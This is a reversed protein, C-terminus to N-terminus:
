MFRVHCTNLYSLVKNGQKSVYWLYLIYIFLIWILHIIIWHLVYAYILFTNLCIVLIALFLNFVVYSLMHVWAHICVCLLSLAHCAQMCTCVWVHVCKCVCVCIDYMCAPVAAIPWKKHSSVCACCCCCVRMFMCTCVCDSVAHFVQSM